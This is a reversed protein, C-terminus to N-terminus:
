FGTIKGQGFLPILVAPCPSASSGLGLWPSERGPRCARGEGRSALSGRLGRGPCSRTAAGGPSRADQGGRPRGAPPASRPPRPERPPRPGPWPRAPPSRPLPAAPGCRSGLRCQREPLAPSAAGGPRATAPGPRLARRAPPVPWVHLHHVLRLRQLAEEFTLSQPGTPRGVKRALYGRRGRRRDGPASPGGVTSGGRQSGLLRRRRAPAKRCAPVLRGISAGLAPLSGSTM